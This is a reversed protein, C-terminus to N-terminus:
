GYNTLNVIQYNCLLLNWNCLKGFSCYLNLMNDTALIILYVLTMGKFIWTPNIRPKLAQIKNPACILPVCEWAEQLPKKLKCM